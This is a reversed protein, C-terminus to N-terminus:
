LLLLINISIEIKQKEKEKDNNVTEQIKPVEKIQVNNKKELIEILKSIPTPTNNVIKVSIKKEVPKENIRIDKKIEIRKNDIKKNDIKKDDITNIAITKNDIKKNETVDKKAEKVEKKEDKKENKKVEKIEKKEDKKVNKIIEKKNNKKIIEVPNVNDVSKTNKNSEIIIDKIDNINIEWKNLVNVAVNKISENDCNNLFKITSLIKPCKKIIDKTIPFNMITNLIYVCFDPNTKISENIWIDIYELM